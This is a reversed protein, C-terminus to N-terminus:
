RDGSSPSGSSGRADEDVRRPWVTPRHGVIALSARSRMMQLQQGEQVAEGRQNVLRVEEVLTGGLRGGTGPRNQVISWRVHVTDGPFIPKRFSWNVALPALTTGAGAYAMVRRKLGEAVSLGLLGHAVRTGFETRRCYEEDTHIMAYDGTVGAFRVIDPETVTRSPSTFSCGPTIDELFVGGDDTSQRPSASGPAPMLAHGVQSWLADPDLGCPDGPEAFETTAARL